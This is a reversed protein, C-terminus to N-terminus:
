MTAIEVRGVTKEGGAKGAGSGGPHVKLIWVTGGWGVLVEEPRHKKSVNKLTSEARGNAEQSKNTNLASGDETELSDRDIWEARARWVGSMEEWGPRNPRDIHNMRKWEFSSDTSELHLHSRMVKIGHENVWLIYKGSLSWKITSITGEGSHLVKDTGTNSGLGMSGLWGSAAAAAGTTTANASKGAAGGVTM